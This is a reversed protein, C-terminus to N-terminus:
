VLVGALGLRLKENEARARVAVRFFRDNLGPFSCCERILMREALLRRGIESASMGASELLLYNASSPYVRIGPLESLTASFWQREAAVYERTYRAYDADALAAVGAVQALTNVSWPERLAALRAIVDQRGIAYGLRLGPIAYFKTMSRLVLGEGGAVLEKASEEECFDMFAEDLVPFTGTARCLDLVPVIEERRYLRGTPNGPNGLLLMDYKAALCDALDNVDLAFGDEPSLPFYETEWGARQLSRGYESFPPAVVLARRGPVLRPLLYILETSGNAACVQEPALGHCRSLALILETADSDPYHVLRDFAATVAERVGPPPGLPNISASFDLLAEPAVGLQRAVAFVTGGHDFPTTM